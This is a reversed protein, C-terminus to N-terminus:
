RTKGWLRLILKEDEEGDILEAPLSPATDEAGLEKWGLDPAAGRHPFGVPIGRGLAPSGPSLFYAMRGMAAFLPDAIVCDGGTGYKALLEAPTFDVAGRHVLQGDPTKTHGEATQIVRGDPRGAHFFLNHDLTARYSAPTGLLFQLSAHRIEPRTTAIINNRIVCDRGGESIRVNVRERSNVVTNNFVKTGPSQIELGPYRNDYVLNGVIVNEGRAGEPESGSVYIGAHGNNFCINNQVLIHDSDHGIIIGPNRNGYCINGRVTHYDGSTIDISEEPCLGIVNNAIINKDGALGQRIGQADRGGSHITV